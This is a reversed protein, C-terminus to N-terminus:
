PHVRHGGRHRADVRHVRRGRGMPRLDHVAAPDRNGRARGRAAGRTAAARHGGRRRGPGRRVDVVRCHDAAPVGAPRARAAVACPARGGVARPLRDGPHDGRGPGPAPHGQRGAARRRHRAGLHRHELHGPHVHRRGCARGTRRPGRAAPRDGAVGPGPAPLRRRPAAGRPPTGRRRHRGDSRHPRGGPVRGTLGLASRDGIGALGQRDLGGGARRPRGPAHLPRHRGARRHRRRARRAVVARRRAPAAGRGRRLGPPAGRHLRQLQQHGGARPGARLAGRPAAGDVPRAPRRRCGPGGALAAARTRGQRAAALVVGGDWPVRVACRRRPRRHRRRARAGVHCRCLAPFRRVARGRDRPAGGPPLRLPLLPDHGRAGERPPRAPRQGGARDVTPLPLVGPHPTRGRRPRCRHTRGGGPRLDLDRGPGRDPGVAGGLTSRRPLRRRRGCHRGPRLAGRCPRGPRRHDRLDDRVEPRRWRARAGAAAAAAPGAGHPHRLRRAARAARRGRGALAAPPLRGM